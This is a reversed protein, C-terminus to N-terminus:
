SQIIEVYNAPFMGRSGNPATGIWWGEDIQEVHTLVDDPDFTVETDDSAQYDYLAICCLGKGEPAAPEPNPVDPAQVAQIDQEVEEGWDEDAEEEDSDGHRPPLNEALLNKGAPPQTPAQAPPPSPQRKPPPSPERPPPSAERQPPPSPQRQPPPSPERAPQTPPPSPQKRPLQIPQRAAPPEEQDVEGFNHKLQRRPPPPRDETDESQSEKRKFYSRATSTKASALKEAEAARERRLQDARHGREEEDRAAQEQDLEWQKKQQQDDSQSARREAARQQNIAKMREQLQREREEAEKAERAKRESDLSQQRELLTRREIDQREHEETETKAWFKDRQKINIDRAAQTKQYVSGVAAIPEQPKSKEKHISYQSGSSKAVKKLIDDEDMDDETRANVTVHIGHFFNTVDRLHNACKFKMSEPAAEGQWNILVFKPLNTNPDLVKCYAYMIKSSNLDDVMDSIGGEGTEAVKLVATQGEYTFVAWDTSNNDAVVDNYAKLLADKHKRLDIAM